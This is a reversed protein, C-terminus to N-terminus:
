PSVEVALPNGVEVTWPGNSDCILYLKADLGRALVCGMDDTDLIQWGERRAAQTNSDGHYGVAFGNGDNNGEEWETHTIDNITRTM